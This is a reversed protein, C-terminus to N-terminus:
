SASITPGALPAGREALLSAWAPVAQEWFAALTAPVSTAPAGAPALHLGLFRAADLLAAV